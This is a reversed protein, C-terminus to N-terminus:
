FPKRLWPKITKLKQKRIRGKNWEIVEKEEYVKLKFKRQYEKESCM